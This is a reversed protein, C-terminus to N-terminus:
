RRTRRREALGRQAWTACVLCLGTAGDVRGRHGCRPLIGVIPAAATTDDRFTEAWLRVIVDTDLVALRHWLRSRRPTM